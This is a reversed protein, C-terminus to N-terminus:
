NHLYSIYFTSFRLTADNSGDINTIQMIFEDGATINEFYLPKTVTVYDNGGDGTMAISFGEQAADTVNYVRFKFVNSNNGTFTLSVLGSYDGDQEFTVTDGSISFGVAEVGTFLDGNGNTIQSYVNQTIPVIVASDQFGGFAHWVDDQLLMHAHANGIVNLGGNITLSDTSFDGYILPTASNGPEIYLKNSGLENYGANYGIFINGDGTLNSYGASSGVATNSAGDNGYLAYAGFAANYSGTSNGYLASAGFAANYSGTSNWYLAARGFAANRTGSTNTTMSLSGVATNDRSTNNYLSRFGIATNDNSTTNAQLTFAGIATNEKGTTNNTLANSGIAINYAGSTISAGAGKGMLIVYTSTILKPNTNGIFLNRQVDDQSIVHNGGQFYSGNTNLTDTITTPSLINNSKSWFSVGTLQVCDSAKWVGADHVSDIRWLEDSYLCIDGVIYNRTTDFSMYKSFELQDTLSINMIAGTIANTGNTNVYADIYSKIQTYTQAKSIGCFLVILLIILIKKM